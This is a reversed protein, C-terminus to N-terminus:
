LKIVRSSSNTLIHSERKSCPMRTLIAIDPSVVVVQRIHQMSKDMARELFHASQRTPKYILRERSGSLM